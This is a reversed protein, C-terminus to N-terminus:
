LEDNGNNKVAALYLCRAFLFLGVFMAIHAIAALSQTIANIVSFKFIQAFGKYLLTSIFLGFGCLFVIYFAKYFKAKTIKFAKELLMQVLFFIVGITFLHVHVAALFPRGSIFNNWGTMKTTILIVVEILLALIIFALVTKFLKKM